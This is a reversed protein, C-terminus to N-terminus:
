RTPSTPLDSVPLLLYAAIGFIAASVACLTTMVPKGIFPESLNM